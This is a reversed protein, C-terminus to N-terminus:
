KSIFRVLSYGARLMDIQFDRHYQLTPSKLIIKNIDCFDLSRMFWIIGEYQRDHLREQFKKDCIINHKIINIIQFIHPQLFPIKSGSVPARLVIGKFDPNSMALAEEDRMRQVELIVHKHISETCLSRIMEMNNLPPLWREAQYASFCSLNAFFIIIGFGTM